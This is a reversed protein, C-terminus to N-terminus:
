RGPEVALVEVTEGERLGDEVVVRTDNSPGLKVPRNQGDVVVVAQSDRRIVAEVPITLVGSLRDIQFTARASMGPRFSLGETGELSVETAYQKEDSRWNQTNTTAVKQVAGQFSRGIADITVEARLGPKVRGVNLEDVMAEAVMRTLDPITMLVQNEGVQQGVDLNIENGWRRQNDDGWVAIGDSPATITLWGARETLTKLEADLRDRNQTAVAVEATKDAAETANTEAVRQIELDADRLDAERKALEQPREFTRFNELERQAKEAKAAKERTDLGATRVEAATVFGQELLAPMREQNEAADQADLAAREAALSLEREKLPASGDRYEALAMEAFRRKRAADDTKRTADLGHLKLQSAATAIGREAKDLEVRTQDLSRTLEENILRAVEEGKKVASGDPVIFAIRGNTKCTVRVTDASKLSANETITIALDGREAQYRALVREGPKAADAGGCGALLIVAAIPWRRLVCSAPRLVPNM